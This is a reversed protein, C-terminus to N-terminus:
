LQESKLEEVDEVGEVGEVKEVKCKEREVKGKFARRGPRTM